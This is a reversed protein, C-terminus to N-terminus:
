DALSATIITTGHLGTSKEVASILRGERPGSDVELSCAAIEEATAGQFCKECIAVSGYEGRVPPGFTRCIVPRAKYLDCSGTEPDLAPCPEDRPFRGDAEVDAAGAQALSVGPFQQALRAAADRARERVRTARPPDREELEALGMRLRHADLQTIGFPGHCCESCGPGCLLWRGSRRAADALAADLQGTLVLDVRNIRSLLGM